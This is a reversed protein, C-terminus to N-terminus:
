STYRIYISHNYVWYFMCKMICLVFYMICLLYFMICLVFMFVYMCAHMCVYMCVCLCVYMCIYMCVYMYIYICRYTLRVIIIYARSPARVLTPNEVRYISLLQAEPVEFFPSPNTKKGFSGLGLIVMSRHPKWSSFM